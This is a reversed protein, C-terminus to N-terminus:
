DLEDLFDNRHPSIEPHEPYLIQDDNTGDSDVTSSYGPLNIEISQSTAQSNCLPVPLLRKRRYTTPKCLRGRPQLVGDDLEITVGPIGADSDTLDSDGDMDQRVQGSISSLLRFNQISKWAKIQKADMKLGMLLELRLGPALSGNRIQTLRFNANRYLYGPDYDVSSYPVDGGLDM